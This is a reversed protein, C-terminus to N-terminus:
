PGRVAAGAAHRRHGSRGSSNKIVMVHINKSRLETRLRTNTNANLGVMNVLLADHVNQLRQRLDDAILNKVYKSMATATKNEYRFLRPGVARPIYEAM